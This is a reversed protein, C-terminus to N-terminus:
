CVCRLAWVGRETLYLLRQLPAAGQLWKQVGRFSLPWSPWCNCSSGLTSCSGQGCQMAEGHARVLCPLMSCLSRGWPPPGRPTDCATSETAYLPNLRPAATNPLTTADASAKVSAQAAHWSIRTAPACGGGALSSVSRVHISANGADTCRPPQCPSM